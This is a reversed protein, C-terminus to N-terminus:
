CRKEGRGTVEVKGEIKGEIIHKLLYNRHLIHGIWNAKRRKIKHLINSGEKVRHLVEECLILGASNRWRDEACKAVEWTNRILVDIFIFLCLIFFLILFCFGM